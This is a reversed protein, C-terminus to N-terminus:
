VKELYEAPHYVFRDTYDKPVDRLNFLQVLEQYPLKISSVEGTAGVWEEQGKPTRYVKVRDGKNVRNGKHDTFSYENAM